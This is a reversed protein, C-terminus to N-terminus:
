SSDCYPSAAIPGKNAPAHAPPAVAVLSSGRIGACIQKFFYAVGSQPRVLADILAIARALAGARRARIRASKMFSRPNGLKRRFGRPAFRPCRRRAPLPGYLTVAKLFLVCEVTREARSLLRKLRASRGTRPLRMIVGFLWGLLRLASAFYADVRATTIIIPQAQTM